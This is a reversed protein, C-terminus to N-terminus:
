IRRWIQPLISSRSTAAAIGLAATYDYTGFHLSAVRGAGAVPMRALPVRGDADLVVQPTEVQVEFRIRGDPLGHAHELAAAVDAMAEVQAITSVKPLTLRLGDPLRGSAMLAGVFLDLTRLGRARTSRELSKFRIGIFPPAVGADVAEAVRHAAHVADADEVADGRDGYGDEFDLRLDEIPERQLKARVRPALEASLSAPLGVREALTALGGESEAATRTRDRGM